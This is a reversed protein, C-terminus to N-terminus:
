GRVSSRPPSRWTEALKQRFRARAAVGRYATVMPQDTVLPSQTTAEFSIKSTPTKVPKSDALGLTGIILEVNRPDIEVQLGEDTWTLLRSLLRGGKDHHKLPILKATSSMEFYKRLEDLFEDGAAEFTDAAIDDGHYALNIDTAPQM